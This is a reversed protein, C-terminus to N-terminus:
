KQQVPPTRRESFQAVLNSRQLPDYRRFEEDPIALLKEADKMLIRPRLFLSDDLVLYDVLEKTAGFIVVRVVAIEQNPQSRLISGRWEVYYVPLLVPTAERNGDPYNRAQVINRRYKGEMRKVDVGLATLWNTALRYAENTDILSSVQSLELIRGHVGKSSNAPMFGRKSFTALHGWGFGFLYQDTLISGGFDKPDYPGVHSGKQVDHETYPREIKLGTQGCFFNVEAVMLLMAVYKYALNLPIM